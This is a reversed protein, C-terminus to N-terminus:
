HTRGIPAALLHVWSAEPDSVTRLNQIVPLDAKKFYNALLRTYKRGETDAKRTRVDPPEDRYCKQTKKAGLELLMVSSSKSIASYSDHISIAGIRGPLRAFVDSVAGLRARKLAAGSNGSWVKLLAAANRVDEEVMMPFVSTILDCCDDENDFAAQLHRLTKFIKHFLSLSGSSAHAMAGGWGDLGVQTPCSRGWGIEFIESLGHGFIVCHNGREVDSHM